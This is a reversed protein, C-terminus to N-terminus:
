SSVVLRHKTEELPMNDFMAKLILRLNRIELEKVILHWAMVLPSLIRPALIGKALGFKYKDITEDVSTISQTRNYANSIEEVVDYYLTNRLKGSMDTLKLSLLDRVAEASLMYGCPIINDSAGLGIDQIIARSAIQLNTLDITFGIAKALLFGDKIRKTMDLFSKYYEEDLKSEAALRSKAGEDIRYKELVPVYNALKCKVLLGTIGDINEISSLEDLLGHNYIVGLPLMSAKKGIPIGCLAVKVNFVDYRVLYARLVKRMDAPLFKFAELHALYERFYRWLCEDLDDFTRIPVEQFYNGIDTGTITALADNVSSTRSMRDIHDLTVVRAEEGKLYASMFAYKTDPM